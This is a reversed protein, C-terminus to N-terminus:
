CLLPVTCNHSYAQPRVQVGGLRQNKLDDATIELVAEALYTNEKREGKRLCLIVDLHYDEDKKLLIPKLVSTSIGYALEARAEEMTVDIGDDEAQRKGKRDNGSM